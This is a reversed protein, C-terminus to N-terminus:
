TSEGDFSQVGSPTDNRMGPTSKVSGTKTVANTGDGGADTGKATPTSKVDTSMKCEYYSGLEETGDGNYTAM